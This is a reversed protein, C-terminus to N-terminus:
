NAERLRSSEDGEVMVALLIYSDEFLITFCGSGLKSHSQLCMSAYKASTAKKRSNFVHRTQDKDSRDSFGCLRGETM